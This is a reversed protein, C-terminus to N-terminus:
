VFTNIDHIGNFIEALKADTGKYRYNLIIRAWVGRAEKNPIFIKYVSHETPNFSLYGAQVALTYFSADSCLTSDKLHEMNIQHDLLVDTQCSSNEMMNIIASARNDNILKVLLDESGTRSWYAQPGAKKDSLYSMVSFINYLLNGGVRMNNYWERVASIKDEPVLEALEDETLSFDADFASPKFIDYVKVNNLGSFLNEKTIRTVGTFVAKGLYPNDKMSSSLFVVLYAKIEMFDAHLMNDLLPKDYEDILIFPKKNYVEFLIETLERMITSSYDNKDDLYNKLIRGMQAPNLYKDILKGIQNKLEKKYNDPTCDKFSLYIVPYKNIEGFVPSKEIYLGRFLGATDKKCDLFAALTNMNLSKGMRRPRTFLVVDSVENIVHEIFATKDVYLCDNNIFNEFISSSM